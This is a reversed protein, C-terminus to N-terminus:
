VIISELEDSPMKKNIFIDKIAMELSPIDKLQIEQNTKLYKIFTDWIELNEQIKHAFYKLRQQALYSQGKFLYCVLFPSISKMLLTYKGFIARDFGENLMEDSFSNVATLFGGFLHDQFNWEDLFAQSFIPNGGQSIVLIVVPDEDILNIPDIARKKVMYDMHESLRSLKLRDQFSAKTEKFNEWKGLEKFLIDHENSIKMALLTLDYKEAIQQGQTLLQRAEKFDLKILALKARLLYVEGLIWFSSSKEALNLLRSIYYEIENLVELDSTIQLEYLLLECLQLFIDIIAFDDGLEEIIEKYIREAEVRNKARPSTKLILAKSGRYLLNIWENEEKVNIQELDTLYDQALELDGKNVAVELMTAIITTKDVLTGTKTQLKLSQELYDLARQYEGRRRYNEGIQGLMASARTKNDIEKFLEFSHELCRLARNPDGKYAYLLFLTRLGMAILYKSNFEKALRLCQKNYKLAHNLEGKMAGLFLANFNLTNIIHWKLGLEEYLNLSNEIYEIALDVNERKYTRAYYKGKLCLIEAKRKKFDISLEQTYTQLIEEAKNILEFARELRGLWLSADAMFLLADVTLIISELKKSEKYTQKALNCAKEYLGQQILINCELLQCSVIIHLNRKRKEKYSRLIQIAENFNSHDILEKAQLLEKSEKVPM